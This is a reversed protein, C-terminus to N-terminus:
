SGVAAEAVGDGRVERFWHVDVVKVYVRRPLYGIDPVPAQDIQICGSHTEIGSFGPQVSVRVDNLIQVSDGAEMVGCLCQLKDEAVLELHISPTEIRPVVRVPVRERKRKLLQASRM